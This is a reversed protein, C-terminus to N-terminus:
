LAGRIIVLEAGFSLTLTLLTAVSRLERPPWIGLTRSATSTTSFAPAAPIVTCGRASARCMVEVSTRSMARM